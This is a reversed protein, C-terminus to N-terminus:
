PEEEKVFATLDAALAVADVDAPVCGMSISSKPATTESDSSRKSWARHYPREWLRQHLKPDETRSRDARRDLTLAVGAVVLAM